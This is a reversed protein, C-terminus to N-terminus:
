GTYYGWTQRWLDSVVRKGQALYIWRKCIISVSFIVHLVFALWSARHKRFFKVKSRLLEAKMAAPMQISSRGGLHVIRADRVLYVPWRGQRARYAFDIDESYMFFSDDLDGIQDIVSRRVMLSAGLVWDVSQDSAADKFQPTLWGAFPWRCNLGWIVATESVVTPFSGWCWQPSGDSNVLNAGAIGALPHAAMFEIMRCLANAEVITDSNLLMVLRGACEHIARNNARAFGVNLENELLRVQPFQTRVMQKSNDASANDIM